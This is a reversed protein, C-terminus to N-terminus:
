LSRERLTPPPRRSSTATFMATCASLRRTRGSRRAALPAWTRATQTSPTSSLPSASPITAGRDRPARRGRVCFLPSHASTPLQASPLRGPQHSRVPPKGCQSCSTVHHMVLKAKPGAPNTWVDNCNTGGCVVHDGPAKCLQNCPSAHGSDPLKGQSGYSNGCWCQEGNQLGIYKFGKGCIQGCAAVPEAVPRLINAGLKPLDRKNGMGDRFCGLLKAGIPPPVPPPAPLPCPPVSTNFRAFLAASISVLDGSPETAFQEFNGAADIWDEEWSGMGTQWAAQDFTRNSRLARGADAFWKRWRGGHYSGLLGAWFRTAYDNNASVQTGHLTILQVATRVYGQALTQNRKLCVSKNLAAVFSYCCGDIECKASAPDVPIKDTSVCQHQRFNAQTITASINECTPETEIATGNQGWRRVAALHRGLLLDEQTGAIRDMGEILAMMRREASAWATLNKAHFAAAIEKVLDTGSLQGLTTLGVTALDMAFTKQTALTPQAKAAQLM